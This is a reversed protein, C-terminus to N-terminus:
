LHASGKGLGKLPSNWQVHAVGMQVVQACRVKLAKSRLLFDGDLAVILNQLELKTFYMVLRIHCIHDCLQLTLMIGQEEEWM